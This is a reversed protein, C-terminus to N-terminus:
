SGNKCSNHIGSGFTWKGTASYFFSSSINSFPQLNKKKLCSSFIYNKQRKLLFLEWNRFVGSVSLFDAILISLFNLFSIFIETHFRILARFLFCLFNRQHKMDFIFLFICAAWGQFIGSSNEFKLWYLPFLTWVNNEIVYSNLPIQSSSPFSFTKLLKM